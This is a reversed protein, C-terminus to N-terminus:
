QKELIKNLTVFGIMAGISHFCCYWSFNLLCVGIWYLYQNSVHLTDTIWYHGSLKCMIYYLFFWLPMFWFCTCMRCEGLAKGRLQQWKNGNYLRQLMKQWGFAIDLAGGDQIMAFFWFLICTASACFIVSILIFTIM